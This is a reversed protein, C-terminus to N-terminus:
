LVYVTTFLVLWVLDVFHWYYSVAEVAGENERALLGRHARRALATLALLGASVHAGHFGTLTYFTSGFVGDSIAFGNRSFEFAQILLFVAGLAITTTLLRRVSAGDGRRLAGLARQLTVSSTLLVLTNFAVLPLDPRHLAPTPPWAPSAGRLVFYTAFLSGFLTVESVIFLLVGTRAHSPEAAHAHSIAAATM